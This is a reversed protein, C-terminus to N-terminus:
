VRILLLNTTLGAATGILLITDGNKIKRNELGHALALPVSASVMNGFEKVENIFRDEPVGLKEMVIPMAVSAQHPVVMDIDSIKMDNNELFEKMMEPIKKMSLSLVTKGNMDFMFEEKTEESYNEPHLNSLGGRIETSHAGESWTKQMADIVGIEKDTKEIIFAVAGDSFLQFSEKQKPNLARSAVDCSFILVRKYRGAELLYSMTDLATMFSTCTTNIDLAPISTGKAIKEHILAAMCPIPQIGVASASVICDIDNVTINANELAKECASVTLSIQKEGGSIRYRTQGDFDVTNRPLEVGYGTFQIKRM